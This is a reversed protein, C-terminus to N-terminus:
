RYTAVQDASLDDWNSFNIHWKQEWEVAVWLCGFLVNIVMPHHDSTIVDYTIDVNHILDHAAVTCIVNDLCTTTNHAESYFTYTDIDKRLEMDM